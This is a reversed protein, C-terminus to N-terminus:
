SHELKTKVMALEDFVDKLKAANRAVLVESRNQKALEKSFELGIGSIAGTVLSWQQESHKEISKM